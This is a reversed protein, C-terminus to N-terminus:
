FCVRFRKKLLPSIRPARRGCIQAGLPLNSLITSNMPYFYVPFNGECCRTPPPFADMAPVSRFSFLMRELFRRVCCAIPNALSGPIGKVEDTDLVPFFSGQWDIRVRFCSSYLSCPRGSTTEVASGLNVVHVPPTSVPRGLFPPVGLKHAEIFFARTPFGSISVSGRIRHERPSDPSTSILRSLIRNNPKPAQKFSRVSSYFLLCVSYFFISPHSFTRVFFELFGIQSSSCGVIRSFFLFASLNPFPYRFVSLPPPLLSPVFFPAWNRGISFLSGPVYICPCPCTL